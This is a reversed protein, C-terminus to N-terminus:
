PYRFGGGAVEHPERWAAAKWEDKTLPPEIWELPENAVTITHGRDCRLDMTFGPRFHRNGDPKWGEREAAEFSAANFPQPKIERPECHASVWPAGCECFRSIKESM